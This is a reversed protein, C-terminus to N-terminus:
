GRQYSTRKDRLWYNDIPAERPIPAAHMILTYARRQRSTPNPGAYHLTTPLHLVCGGARCPVAVSRAHYQAADDVELGHVRPDDGISHHPLVDYRHSGPVYHMCGNEGDADDLPMWFNISREILAPDHYAMDQHWPTESGAGAPKFIMHEGFFDERLAAGFVSRAAERANRLFAGDKLEPAFRSPEALLPLITAARAGDAAVLDVRKGEGRGTESSFLRDYITRLRAIEDDGVFRELALFGESELTARQADTLSTM